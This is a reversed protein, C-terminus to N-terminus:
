NIKNKNTAIIKNLIKKIEVLEKLFEKCNPYAPNAECLFL